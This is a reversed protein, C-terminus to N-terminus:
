KGGGCPGTGGGSTEVHPQAPSPEPSSMILALVVLATRKLGPTSAGDIRMPKGMDNGGQLIGKDDITIKKDAVVLTEGELHFPATSGDQTVISGDPKIEAHKKGDIATITGDPTLAGVDQWREVPPKGPEGHVLKVELHGNAHLQMGLEDGQYFKLEGLEWPGTPTPAAASGMPTPEVPAPKHGGGCAALSLAAVVNLLKNM